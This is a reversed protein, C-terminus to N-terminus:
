RGRPRMGRSGAGLLLVAAHRIFRGLAPQKTSLESCLRTTSVPHSLLRTESAERARRSATRQQTREHNAGYAVRESHREVNRGGAEHDRWIGGTAATLSVPAVEAVVPSIM